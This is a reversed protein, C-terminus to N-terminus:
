TVAETFAGSRLGTVRVVKPTGKDLVLPEIGSVYGNWTDTNTSTGDTTVAKWNCLTKANHADRVSDHHTNSPDWLMEFSFASEGKIGVRPVPEDDGIAQCDIGGRVDPPLQLNRVGEIANFATGAGTVDISLVLTAGTFRKVTM